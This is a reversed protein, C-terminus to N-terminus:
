RTIVMIEDPYQYKEKKIPSSLSNKNGSNKRCFTYVYVTM